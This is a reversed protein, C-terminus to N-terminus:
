VEINSDFVTFNVHVFKLKENVSECKGDGNGM